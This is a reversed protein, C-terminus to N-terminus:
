QATNNYCTRVGNTRGDTGGATPIKRIKHAYTYTYHHPMERSEKKACRGRFFLLLLFAMLIGVLLARIVGAGAEERGERHVLLSWPGSRLLAAATYM